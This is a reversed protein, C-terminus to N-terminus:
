RSSNSRPPQPSQLKSAAGARCQLRLSSRWSTREWPPWRRRQTDPMAVSTANGKRPPSSTRGTACRSLGRRGAFSRACHSPHHHFAFSMSHRGVRGSPTSSFPLYFGTPRSGVLPDLENVVPLTMTVRQGTFALEIVAGHARLEAARRGRAILTVAHGASALRVGYLTGKVGSGLVVIRM